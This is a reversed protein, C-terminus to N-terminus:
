LIVRTDLARCGEKGYFVKLPNIDLEQIEPFDIMLQSFHLIADVVAEIDARKRGRAGLLIQAGRVGEIMEQAERRSIPAVRVAIDEFLEVFIGGLGVLVVPGFQRNQKRGLILELGSTVMPQMLVGDPQIEPYIQRLRSMM